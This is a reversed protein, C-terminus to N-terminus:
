GIQYPKGDSLLWGLEINVCELLNSRMCGGSYCIDDGLAIVEM